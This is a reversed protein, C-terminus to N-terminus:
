FSGGSGLVLESLQKSESGLYHICIYNSIIEYIVCSLVKSIKRTKKDPKM